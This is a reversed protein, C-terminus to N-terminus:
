LVRWNRRNLEWYVFGGAVLGALVFWAGTVWAGFIIKGTGFLLLYIMACGAVWDLLLLSSGTQNSVEPAERAIPGWLAAGPRVRRYFAILRDQDEPATLWTATLWTVTSCVVTILVTYAFEDPRNTDLGVGFELIMSVVFSSLMAAVESWANIRWWFWRLILVSGTGAGLAMLFKWAGSISDQFY